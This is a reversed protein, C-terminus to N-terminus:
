GPLNEGGDVGSARGNGLEEIGINACSSGVIKEPSHGGVTDAWGTAYHGPGVGIDSQRHAFRVPGAGNDDIVDTSSGLGGADIEGALATRSTGDLQSLVTQLLEFPM